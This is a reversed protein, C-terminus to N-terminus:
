KKKRRLLVLSAAISGVLNCLQDIASDGWATAEAKIAWHSVTDGTGFHLIGEGPPLNTYAFFEAIEVLSALGVAAFITLLVLLWKPQNKLRTFLLNGVFLAVAFGGILHMYVDFEIGFFFTGYLKMQHLVVAFVGTAIVPITLNLKPYLWYVALLIAAALFRDFILDKEWNFATLTWVFFILSGILCAKRAWTHFQKSEKM